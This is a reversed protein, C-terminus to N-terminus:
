GTKGSESDVLLFFNSTSKFSVLAILVTQASMSTPKTSEELLASATEGYRESGLSHIWSVGPNPNEVFYQDMFEKYLADQSFMVRLEGIVYQTFIIASELPSDKGHQIYWRFLENAFEQKFRVLYEQIRGAHPNNEPPFVAGKNCLVVLNAFDHYKEVLTFAATEHGLRGIAHGNTV